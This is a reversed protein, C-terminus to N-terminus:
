FDGNGGRAIGVILGVVEALGIFVEIVILWIIIIELRSNHIFHEQDRVMGFMDSLVGCRTNLVEVRTDLELYDCCRRYLSQLSDPASWFFEPTDLVTSLLNVASRHIFVEGILKNIEKRGLHVKGSEALEEPLHKTEAALSAVREEYVCLKTSQAMAHAISLMVSSDGAMGLSLTVIDNKMNPRETGSYQYEFEDVEVENKDLPDGMVPEVVRMMVLEETHKNQFGWFVVVGYDFYFIDGQHEGPTEAFRHHLVEPLLEYQGLPYCAKAQTHLVRLDISDCVCYVQVRGRSGAQEEGHPLMSDGRRPEASTARLLDLMDEDDALAVVRDRDRGALGLAPRPMVPKPKAPPARSTSSAKQPARHSTAGHAGKPAVFASPLTRRPPQAASKDRPRQDRGARSTDRGPQPTAGDRMGAPPVAATPSRPPPLASPPTPSRPWLQPATDGM